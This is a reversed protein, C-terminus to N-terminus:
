INGFSCLYHIAGKEIISIVSTTEPLLLNATRAKLYRLHKPDPLFM